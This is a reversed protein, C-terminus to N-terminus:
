ATPRRSRPSAATWQPSRRRISWPTPVALDVGDPVAPGAPGTSAAEVVPAIDAGVIEHHGDRAFVALLERGLQGLAGTIVVRM